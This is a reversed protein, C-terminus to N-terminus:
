GGAGPAAPAPAGTGDLPDPEPAAPSGHRVQQWISLIAALQAILFAIQISATRLQYLSLLLGARTPWYRREVRFTDIDMAIGTVTLILLLLATALTLNGVAQHFATNLMRDFLVPLAYVASLCLARMPGRRGPLIRWLAGLVFGAGAWTVQWSALDTISDLLAHRDYTLNTRLDGKIREAWFMVATAPIGTMGAFFSARRANGWWTPRPGWSLAIDVPSVSAPLPSRRPGGSTPPTPTPTPWRHLRDLERELVLRRSDDQGQELRRLRAHLERQRRASEIMRRRHTEDVVAHLSTHPLIERALISHREGFALLASLGAWTLLLSLLPLPVGAYSGIVPAVVLLFLVRIAFRESGRPAMTSAGPAQTRSRMVAFLAFTSWWWLSPRVEDPWDSALRTLDDLLAGRHLANYADGTGSLWTDRRRRQEAAWVSATPIVLSVVGLTGLIAGKFSVPNGASPGTPTRWLRLASATLGVLWIFVVCACAIGLAVLGHTGVRHPPEGSASPGTSLSPPLGFAGPLLAVAAVTVAAGRVAARAGIAPGAFRCLLLGLLASLLLQHNGRHNTWYSTDTLSEAAAYANSSVLLVLSLALALGSWQLLARLSATQAATPAPPLPDKRLRRAAVLTLVVLAAEWAYWGVASYITWPYRSWRAALAKTAPPSLRIRVQPAGEGTEASWVLETPSGSDPTPSIARAPRGGLNVRVNQWWSGALAPPRDLVLTWWRIGPEIRWPGFGHVQGDYIWTSVSDEVHIWPGEVAVTPKRSRQEAPRAWRFDDPRLLLCRMASRYRPSASDLLLDGAREWTRPIRISTTSTASSYDQGDHRIRVSSSVQAEGLMWAACGNGDPEAAGALAPAPAPAALLPLAVAALLLGSAVTVLRRLPGAWM